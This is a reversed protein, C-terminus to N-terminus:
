FSFRTIKHVSQLELSSCSIWKLKSGVQINVMHIQNNHDMLYVPQFFGPNFGKIRSWRAVEGCNPHHITRPVRGPMVMPHMFPPAGGAAAQTAAQQNQQMRSNQNSMPNLNSMSPLNIGLLWKHRVCDIWLSILYQPTIFLHVQNLIIWKIKIPFSCGRALVFTSPLRLRVRLCPDVSRFTTVSWPFIPRQRKKEWKWFVPGSKFKLDQYDPYSWHDVM